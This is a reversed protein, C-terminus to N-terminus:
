TSTFSYHQQGYHNENTDDLLWNLDINFRKRIEKLTEAPPKTKNQEIESLRGQSIGVADLFAIQSLNLHARIAKIKFGISKMKM